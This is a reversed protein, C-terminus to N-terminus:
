PIKSPRNPIYIFVLSALWVSVRCIFVVYSFIGSAVIRAKPVSAKSILLVLLDIGNVVRVREVRNLVLVLRIIFRDRVIVLRVVGGPMEAPVQPHIVTAKAKVRVLHDRPSRVVLGRKRMMTLLLVIRGM